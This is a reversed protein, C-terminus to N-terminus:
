RLTKLYSVLATRSEDSQPAVFMKTGPAFTAPGKLFADLNADTWSGGRAKLAPSYTFDPRAAIKGGAAGVLAPALATSVEKHCVMCQVAFVQAGDAALAPTAALSLPGLSLLLTASALRVM